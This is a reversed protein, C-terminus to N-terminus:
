GPGMGGPGMGGLPPGGPPFGPGGPGMGPLGPLGTGGGAMAQSLLAQLGGPPLNGLGGPPVPVVATNMTQPPRLRPSWSDDHVYGDMALLLPSTALSGPSINLAAALRSSEALLTAASHLCAALHLASSQLSEAEAGELAPRQGDQSVESLEEAHAQARAAARSATRIAETALQGVGRVALRALSPAQAGGAGSTPASAPCVAELDRRLGMLAGPASWQAENVPQRLPLPLTLRAFPGHSPGRPAASTERQWCAECLNYDRHSLSRYLTGRIPNQDCGDCKVEYHRLDFPSQPGGLSPGAPAEGGEQPSSDLGRQVHRTYAAIKALPLLRRRGGGGGGAGQLLGGRLGEEQAGLHVIPLQPMGGIPPQPMGGIPPQPAGPPPEGAGPAPGAGEPTEVMHLVSGDRVGAAELGADGQVARGMFLLRQRAPPVGTLPELAGRLAGLGAGAPLEVRHMAPGAGAVLAKVELRLGGAAPGDAPTERAGGRGGAV